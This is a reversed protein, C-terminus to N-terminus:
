RLAELAQIRLASIAPLLGGLMGMVLVVFASTLLVPLDVRFAFEIERGATGIATSTTLGNTAFGLLLGVACGAIAIFQTELLFALVIHSPRFGLLRLVAIDRTRQSIAAYMTNMVGFVAGIAMFAAIVWAAARVAAVPEAQSAYYDTERTAQVALARNTRLFELAKAASQSDECRLVVSSYSGERRFLSALEGLDTWVESEIAAGDASFTGAVTWSKRGIELQDGLQLGLARQVAQGVLLESQGAQLMEGDVIQIEDHVRFAMPLVGRVQLFQYSGSKQSFPQAVLFLERSALLQGRKDRAVGRISEIRAAQDSDLRSLVEDVNGRALVVVNRPQGSNICASEVGNLCALMVVLAASVLTFGSATMLTTKWRVRLNRYNYSIPIM